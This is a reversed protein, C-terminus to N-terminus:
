LALHPTFVSLSSSLAGGTPLYAIYGDEDMYSFCYYAYAVSFIGNVHVDFNSRIM